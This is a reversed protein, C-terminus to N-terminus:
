DAGGAFAKNALALPQAAPAPVSRGAERAKCPHKTDRKIVCGAAQSAGYQRGAKRDPALHGDHTQRHLERNDSHKFIPPQETTMGGGSISTALSRYPWVASKR